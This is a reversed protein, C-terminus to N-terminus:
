VTVCKFLNESSSEFTAGSQNEGQKEITKGFKDLFIVKAAVQRKEEGEKERQFGCLRHVCGALCIYPLIALSFM